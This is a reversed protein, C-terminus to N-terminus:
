VDHGEALIRRVLDPYAKANEGIVFFSAHVGKAKLIDLIAPTWDPDPGDDFSLALKRTKNGTRQLIFTPPKKRYPADIIQATGSDIDFTRAGQLPREAVRLIEGEGEFDIDEGTGIESLDHPAVTGYSRGLVSWISPDESGPRWLAFAATRYM